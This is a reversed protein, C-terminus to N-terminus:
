KYELLQWRGHSTTFMIIPVSRDQHDTWSGPQRSGLGLDRLIDAGSAM